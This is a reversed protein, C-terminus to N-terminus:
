EYCMVKFLLEKSKKPIKVKELTKKVMLHFYAVKGFDPFLKVLETARKAGIGSICQFMAWQIEKVTKAKKVVAPPVVNIKSTGYKDFMRQVALATDYVNTTNIYPIGWGIVIGYIIGSLLRDKYNIAGEIIVLPHKYTDKLVGLQEWLHRNRGTTSQILDDITKREIGIDDFVIDGSELYKLEVPIKKMMLLEAVEKEGSGRNDVFIM